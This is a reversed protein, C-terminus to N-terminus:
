DDLHLAFAVAAEASMGRGAEYIGTRDGELLGLAEPTVDTATSIGVRVLDTGTEDRLGVMAGAGPPLGPM